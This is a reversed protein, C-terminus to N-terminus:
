RAQNGNSQRAGEAPEPREMAPPVVVPLPAQPHPVLLFETQYIRRLVDGHMLEEPTGCFVISGACLGLIRDSELAAASVDHTVALITVGQERNARALVGRIAAQHRYDLFTTPEDLLLIDAEQALAAAIYVRQREGGSLSGMQREALEATDTTEMAARVAGRDERSAAAFPSLYPYRSLLVFQEATFPAARGDAQPVYGLRRALERQAYSELPRGAVEITGSGSRLIRMLCKLLTSKGAGNPGVITVYEGRDVHFSVDCLIPKRGVAFGYGEVRLIPEPPETAAANM